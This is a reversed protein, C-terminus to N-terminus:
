QNVITRVALAQDGTGGVYGTVFITYIRGAEYQQLPGTAIAVDSGTSAVQLAYQDATATRFSTAGMFSIDRMDAFVSDAQPERIDIAGVNPSLNVVRVSIHNTDPTALEDTLLLVDTATGTDGVFISYVDLGSLNAVLSDLVPSPQSAYTVKITRQGSEVPQYATHNPFDLADAETSDDVMVDIAQPIPTANVIMVTANQAATSTDGTPNSDSCGAIFALPIALGLLIFSLKTIRV